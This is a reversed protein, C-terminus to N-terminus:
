RFEGGPQGEAANRRCHDAHINVEGLAGMIV